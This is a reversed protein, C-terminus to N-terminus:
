GHVFADGPAFHCGGRNRGEGVAFGRYCCPEGGVAWGIRTLVAQSKMEEKTRAIKADAYMAEFWEHGTPSCVQRCKEILQSDDSKVWEALWGQVQAKVEPGPEDPYYQDDIM